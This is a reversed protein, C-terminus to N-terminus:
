LPVVQAEGPRRHAADLGVGDQQGLVLRGDPDPGPLHGPHIGREQGDVLGPSLPVVRTPRHEGGVREKRETIPYIFCGRGPNGGDNLRASRHAIGFHDGGGILVPQRHDM